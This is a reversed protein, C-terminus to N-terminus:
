KQENLVENILKVIKCYECILNCDDLYTTGDINDCINCMKLCKERIEKLAQKYKNDKKIYNCKDMYWEDCYKCNAVFGKYYKKLKKLGENEQQLKKFKKDLEGTRWDTLVKKIEPLDYTALNLRLNANRDKLEDNEQQLEINEIRDLSLISLTEKDGNGNERNTPRDFRVLVYWRRKFLKVCYPAVSFSNASAAGYRRYTIMARRNERMAKLITKLCAEGSPIAELLIRNQIGVNEDLMNSVSLTSFLWNAISDERLVEKNYIYYRYGDKRDCEIIVGFMDLIADRHRNFTTRAFEVGGSEETRVWKENIEAFTIKGAEYITEILWIYEKFLTPIKM